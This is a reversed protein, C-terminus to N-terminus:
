TAPSFQAMVLITLVKIMLYSQVIINGISNHPIVIYNTM